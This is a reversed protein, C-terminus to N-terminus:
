IREDTVSRVFGVPALLDRRGVKCKEQVLRARKRNALLAEPGWDFTEVRCIEIVPQSGDGQTLKGFMVGGVNRPALAGARELVALSITAAVSNHLRFRFERGPIEITAKEVRVRVAAPGPQSYEM